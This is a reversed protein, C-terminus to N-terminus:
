YGQFLNKWQLTKYLPFIKEIDTLLYHGNMEPDSSKIWTQKGSLHWAEFMNINEFKFVEIIFGFKMYKRSLCRPCKKRKIPMETNENWVYLCEKCKKQYHCIHYQILTALERARIDIATLIQTIYILDGSDGETEGLIRRIASQWATVIKNVPTQSNRSDIINHAEDIIINKPENNEQWFKLNIKYEYVPKDKKLGILEKKIIYEPKLERVNKIKKAEINTYFVRDSNDEKMELVATATKGSGVNGLYISIIQIV